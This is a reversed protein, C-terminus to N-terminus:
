KTLGMEQRLQKKVGFEKDKSLFRMMLMAGPLIIGMSLICAITNQAISKRKFKRVQNFFDDLTQRSTKFEQNLNSIQEATNKVENIDIYGRPDIKDSAKYTKIVDSNKLAKVITNSSNLHLFDYIEGDTKNQYFLELDKEVRNDLFTQKFNDDELVKASLGISKNFNKKIKKELFDRIKDSAVYMFFLFASEKILYGLFEQKNRSSSLRNGTIAVDVIKMNDVPNFVFNEISTAFKSKFSINKNESHEKALNKKIQNETYKQKFKTLWYYSAVTMATSMVFKTIALGKFLNQKRSIKDINDAINKQSLDSKAYKKIKEFIEKNNNKLNRVDFQSDLGFMKFATKDFIKKYIPIGWLWIAQTGFEDIFRDQGEEKGTVSSATTMGISNVVDRMAIPVLSQPDDLKAFFKAQSIKPIIM